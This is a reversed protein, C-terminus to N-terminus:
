IIFMSTISVILRGLRRANVKSYLFPFKSLSNFNGGGNKEPAHNLVEMSCSTPVKGASPFLLSSTGRGAELKLPIDAQSPAEMSAGCGRLAPTFGDRVTSMRPVALRAVAQRTATPTEGSGFAIQGVGLLSLDSVM